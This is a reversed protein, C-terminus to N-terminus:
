EKNKLNYIDDLTILIYNDNTTLNFGSKSIFGLKNYKINISNLQKIEENVISDDIPKNTFKVEYFDYGNKNLTVVDFEGNKKNKVDDYYYKGIKYLPPNILHNINLLYFYQKAIKEFEHPVYKTLFDEKIFEDYFDDPAMIKFYSNKTFIYRYYFLSLRESIEYTAKKESEDNIPCIREIVDMKILRKLVDSLMPSSSIHSKNLIDKYKKNGLAIAYFCENANNLKTMEELLFGEAENLFRANPSAILNIINEKLSKTEDIYQNYYPVGGFISYYAVKDENKLSPYFMSSELYNMQKINMKISFRGYLPNRASLLEEMVDIYSGCLILKLKCNMKYKDIANQIISDLYELNNRLYPYEDIVLIIKENISKNFVFELVQNLTKFSPTPINFATALIESLSQINYLESAKQCEFYIKVGEFNKFSEKILESKGLRKRGYILISEFSDSNYLEKLTNIENVRGIFKM